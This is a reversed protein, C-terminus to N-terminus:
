YPWPPLSSVFTSESTIEIYYDVRLLLLIDQSHWIVSLLSLNKCCSAICLATIGCYTTQGDTWGYTQGDTRGDTGLTLTGHDCLNSQKSFLKVGFLKLYRSVSVGVVVIQDL